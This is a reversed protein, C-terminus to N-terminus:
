NNRAGMKRINYIESIDKVLVLTVFFYLLLIYLLQFFTKSATILFFRLLGNLEICEGKINNFSFARKIIIKKLFAKRKRVLNREVRQKKKLSIIGAM